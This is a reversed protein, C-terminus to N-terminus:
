PQQISEVTGLPKQRIFACKIRKRDKKNERGEEIKKELQLCAPPKASSLTVVKLRTNNGRKKGGWFDSVRL